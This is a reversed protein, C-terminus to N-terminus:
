LENEPTRTDPEALVGPLNDLLTQHAALVAAIEGRLRDRQIKLHEIEHALAHPLRAADAQAREAELMAAQIINAAEQKAAEIANEGFKQSTVLASRLAEEMQRYEEIKSEYAAQQEKLERKQEVLAELMDAVRTLFADVKAPQYGFMSRPFDRHYLDSPALPTQGGLLESVVRDKRM